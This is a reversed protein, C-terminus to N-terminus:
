TSGYGSNRIYNECESPQITEIAQALANHVAEESRAMATRMAQKIKSFLQEIPNLDPSYPPLVILRAGTKRIARRVAQGKHSGLNDLVVIDGPSLTKALEKEVYTLFANANIPG